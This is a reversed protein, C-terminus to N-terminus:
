PWVCWPLSFQYMPDVAGLSAVTFYLRAAHSALPQYHSRAEDISKETVAAVRQKEAVSDALLKTDSLTDVATSDDLLNGESTSLV